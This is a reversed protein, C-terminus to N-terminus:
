SIEGAEVKAKMNLLADYTEKTVDGEEVSIDGAEANAKMNLLADYTEQTMDGEEVSIMLYDHGGYEYGGRGDTPMVRRVRYLKYPTTKDESSSTFTGNKLDVSAVKLVTITVRPIKDEEYVTPAMYMVFDGAQVEDYDKNM